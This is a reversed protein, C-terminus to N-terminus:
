RASQPWLDEGSLILRRVQGLPNTPGPDTKKHQM